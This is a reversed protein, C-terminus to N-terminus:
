PATTGNETGGGTDTGGSNGSTGNYKALIAEKETQAYVTRNCIFTDILGNVLTLQTAFAQDDEQSSFKQLKDYADEVVKYNITRYDQLKYFYGWAVRDLEGFSVGKDHLLKRLDDADNKDATSIFQLKENLTNMEDYHKMYHGFRREKAVDNVEDTVASLNESCGEILESLLMELKGNITQIDNHYLKAVESTSKVNKVKTQISIVQKKVDDYRNNLSVLQSDIKKLEVDYQSPTTTLLENIQDRMKQIKMKNNYIADLQENM